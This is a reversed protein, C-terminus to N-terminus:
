LAVVSALFKEVGAIAKMIKPDKVPTMNLRRLYDTATDVGLDSVRKGVHSGFDFVYFPEQKTTPAAPAAPAAVKELAPAAQAAVEERKKELKSQAEATAVDQPSAPSDSFTQFSDQQVVGAGQIPPDGVASVPSPAAQGVSQTAQAPVKPKKDKTVVPSAAQPAAPAPSTVVAPKPADPASQHAVRQNLDTAQATESAGVDFYDERGAQNDSLAQAIQKLKVLEAETTAELKHHLRKELMEPTVSFREAFYVAMARVRDIIPGAGSGAMTKECAEVAAEVIDGPIVGLICARLRRAAQNATLEYIEREDKLAYGGTRRDRWHKVSFVKTQRVNTQLDWCYSMMTSEGAQTGAAQKRDLEITGFDLNGWNQALVEALRISPGTVTQDGKPYAYVARDALAPRKCSDMIATFAKTVNRPFRQAIVMAAQVEQAARSQAVEMFGSSGANPLAPANFGQVANDM